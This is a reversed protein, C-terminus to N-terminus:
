KDYNEGLANQITEVIRKIYEYKPNPMETLGHSGNGVESFEDQDTLCEPEEYITSSEHSLSGILYDSDCACFFEEITRKGIANWFSTWSEGYCTVTVKGKGPATNECIVSIPDLGKVESIEIKNITSEVVKM